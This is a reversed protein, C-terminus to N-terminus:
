FGLLSKDYGSENLHDCLEPIRLKFFDYLIKQDIIVGVMNSYYDVPLISEVIM